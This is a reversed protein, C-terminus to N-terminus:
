GEYAGADPDGSRAKGSIDNAPIETRESGLDIAPSGPKPRLGDDDTFYAKDPGLPDDEDVFGPDLDKNNSGIFTLEELDRVLSNNLTLTGAGQIDNVTLASQDLASWVICNSLEPSSERFNFMGGGNKARNNSFTVNFLLPASSSNYM